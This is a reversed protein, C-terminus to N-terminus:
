RISTSLLEVDLPVNVMPDETNQVFGLLERNLLGNAYLYEKVERNESCVQLLAIFHLWNMSARGSELQSITVRSVGSVMGLESQTMGLRNRLVPLMTQLRACYENKLEKAMLIHKKM